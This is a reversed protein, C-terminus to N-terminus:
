IISVLSLYADRYPCKVERLDVSQVTVQDLDLEKIDEEPLAVVV